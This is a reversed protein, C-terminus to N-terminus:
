TKLDTASSWLNKFYENFMAILSPHTSSLLDSEKINKQPDVLIGVHINDVCAGLAEPLSILYRIEFNSYGMLVRLNQSIKQENNPKEIITQELVGRNLASKHSEFSYNLAQSFREFSSICKISKQSTSIIKITRNIFRTKKPIISFNKKELDNKIPQNGFRQLLKTTQKKVREYKKKQQALLFNVGLKFPTAVYLNPRGVILSVLGIDQLMLITRYCNARDINAEIAIDKIPATNLKLLSLYIKAQMVTLGAQNMVSIDEDLITM